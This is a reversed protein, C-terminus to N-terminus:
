QDHPSKPMGPQAIQQDAARGGVDHPTGRDRQQQTMLHRPAVRAISALLSNRIGPHEEELRAILQKVMIRQPNHRQKAPCRERVIPFGLQQACADVQAEFLYCLPRIVRHRGDDARLAPAMAKITGNFLQNLLLTEIFDDGHHGLALSACGLQAAQRYLIGRRLRSCLACPSDSDRRKQRIIADIPERQVHLAIGPFRNRVCRAIADTDFGPFGHDITIAQLDFAIPAKRQLVCLAHLLVWSDKGGSLAVLIRDQHRILDFTGIARGVARIVKKEIPVM